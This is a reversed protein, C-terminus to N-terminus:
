TRESEGAAEAVARQVVGREDTDEEAQVLM